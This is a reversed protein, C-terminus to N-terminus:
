TSSHLHTFLLIYHFHLFSTTLSIFKIYSRRCNTFCVLISSVCVNIFHIVIDSDREKLYIVCLSVVQLKACMDRNYSKIKRIKGM